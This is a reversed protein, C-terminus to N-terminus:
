WTHGCNPCTHTSPLKSTIEEGDSTNQKGVAELELGWEGLLDRDWDSALLETDWEGNNVNDRIVIEREREETLDEILFTPVTQLKLHKAAEYRQNGALIVLKGTRNSLILPRAEFYDPNNQISECLNKFQADKITRPNGKLKNLETLPRHIITSKSENM